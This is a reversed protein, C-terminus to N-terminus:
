SQPHWLTRNMQSLLDRWQPIPWLVAVLMRSLESFWHQNRWHPAVQLVKHEQERIQRIVEPILAIPPLSYLLLNPWDNEKSSYTLCHSNVESAFLKVEAKGYIDWIRFYRSRPQVQGACANSEAFLLQASGIGLPAEGSHLPM